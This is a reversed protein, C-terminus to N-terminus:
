RGVEPAQDGEVADETTELARPRGLWALVAGTALLPAAVLWAGQVTVMGLVCAVAQLIAAAKPRGKSLAGGVIGAVGAFIAVLGALMATGDDAADLGAIATGLVFMVSAMILGIVGGTIGLAMAATLKGSPQPTTDM